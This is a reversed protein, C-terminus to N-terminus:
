SRRVAQGFSGFRVSSPDSFKFRSVFGVSGEPILFKVRPCSFTLPGSKSFNSDQFDLLQLRGALAQGFAGELRTQLLSGLLWTLVELACSGGTEKEAHAGERATHM